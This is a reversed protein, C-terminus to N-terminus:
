LKSNATEVKDQERYGIIKVRASLKFVGVGDGLEDAIRGGWGLVGVVRIESAENTIELELHSALLDEEMKGKPWSSSSAAVLSLLQRRGSGDGKRKKRQHNLGLPIQPILHVEHGLDVDNANM